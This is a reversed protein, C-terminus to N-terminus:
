QPDNTVGILELLWPAQTPQVCSICIQCAIKRLSYAFRSLILVSKCLNWIIESSVARVSVTKWWETDLRCVALMSSPWLRQGDSAGEPKIASIRRIQRGDELAQRDLHGLLAIIVHRLSACLFGLPCSILFVSSSALNFHCLIGFKFASYQNKLMCVRLVPISWDYSSNLQVVNM